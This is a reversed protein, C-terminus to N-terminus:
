NLVCPLGEGLYIWGQRREPYHTGPTHILYRLLMIGAVYWDNMEKVGGVVVDGNKRPIIYVWDKGTLTRGSRVWPARLVVTQGRAPYVDQDEVGGLFRAGLGTCVILGHLPVKGALTKRRQHDNHFIYPGGQLIQDIHQVTGRCIAGGKSLFRAQLYQLYMPVDITLTEFEVGRAGGASAADSSIDKWQRLSFM